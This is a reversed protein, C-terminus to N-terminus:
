TSRSTPRQELCMRPSPTRPPRRPFTGSDEQLRTRRCLVRGYVLALAVLAILFMKNHMKM